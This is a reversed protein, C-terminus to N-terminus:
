PPNEHVQNLARTGPAIALDGVDRPVYVLLNLPADAEHDRANMFGALIGALASDQRCPDSEGVLVIRVPIFLVGGDPWDLVEM